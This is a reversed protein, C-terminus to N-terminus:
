EVHLPYDYTFVWDSLWNWWRVLINGAELPPLETQLIDGRGYLLPQRGCIAAHDIIRARVTTNALLRRLVPGRDRSQHFTSIQQAPRCRLPMTRPTTSPDPDIVISGTDVPRPVPVAAAILPSPDDSEAGPM